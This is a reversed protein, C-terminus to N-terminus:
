KKQMGTFLSSRYHKLRNSHVVQPLSTEGLNVVVYNVPPDNEDEKVVLFPGKWNTELKRRSEAPDNMM